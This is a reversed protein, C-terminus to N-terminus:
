APSKSLIIYGRSSGSVTGINSNSWVGTISSNTGSSDTATITGAVLYDVDGVFTKLFGSGGALAGSIEGYDHIATKNRTLGGLHFLRKDNYDFCWVGAPTLPWLAQTPINMYIRENVIDIGNRHPLNFVLNEQFSKFRTLPSFGNGTFESIYGKNDIIMLAENYIFGICDTVELNFEALTSNIPDFSYVRFKGIDNLAKTGIYIKGLSKVMWTIQYEGPLSVNRYYVDSSTPSVPTAIAHIFNGDSVYLFPTDGFTLTVHGGSTSFATQGLTGTWWTKNWASGGGTFYALDTALTVVFNDAGTTQGYVVFESDTLGTPSNTTSDAVFSASLPTNSKYVKDAVMWQNRASDPATSTPLGITSIDDTTTHPYIKTAVTLKQNRVWPSVNYSEIVVGSYEGEYSPQWDKKPNLSLEPM